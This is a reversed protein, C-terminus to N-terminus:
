RPQRHPSASRYRFGGRGTRQLDPACQGASRGPSCPPFRHGRREFESRNLTSKKEDQSFRSLTLFVDNLAMKASAPRTVLVDRRFARNLLRTNLESIRTAHAQNEAQLDDMAQRLKRVQVRLEDREGIIWNMARIDGAALGNPAQDHYLKGRAIHFGKFQPDMHVLDGSLLTLLKQVALPARNEKEWRFFTREDVGCLESADEITM